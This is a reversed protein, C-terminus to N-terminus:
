ENAYIVIVTANPGAYVPADFSEFTLGPATATITANPTPPMNFAVVAGYTTETMGTGSPQANSGLYALVDPTPTVTVQGSGVFTGDCHELQISLTGSGSGQAYGDGVTGYVAGMAGANWLPSQHGALDQDVPGGTFQYTTYFGDVDGLDIELAHAIGDHLEIAYTGASDGSGSGSTASGLIDRTTADRITVPISPVAQSVTFTSYDITTGSITLPDPATTTWHCRREDRDCRDRACRQHFRAPRMGNAFVLAYSGRM